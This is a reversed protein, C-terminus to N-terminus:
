GDDTMAVHIPVNPSREKVAQLFYEMTTVDERDSILWAM